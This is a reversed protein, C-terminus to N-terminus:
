AFLKSRCIYVTNTVMLTLLWYLTYALGIPRFFTIDSKDEKEKDILVTESTKWTEPIYGTAWMITFLKHITQSFIPPLMTLVENM